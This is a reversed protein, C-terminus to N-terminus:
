ARVVVRVNRVWRWADALPWRVLREFAFHLSEIVRSAHVLRTTLTAGNVYTVRELSTTEQGPRSWSILMGRTFLPAHSMTVTTTGSIDPTM